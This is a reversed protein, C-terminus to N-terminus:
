ISKLIFLYDLCAVCSVAVRATERWASSRSPSFISDVAQTNRVVIRPACLQQDRRGLLSESLRLIFETLEPNITFAQGLVIGLHDLPM